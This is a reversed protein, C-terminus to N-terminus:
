DSNRSQVRKKEALWENRQLMLEIRIQGPGKQCGFEDLNFPNITQFFKKTEQRRKGDADKWRYTGRLSVEQFRVSTM